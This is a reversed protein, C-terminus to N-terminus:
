RKWKIVLAKYVGDLSIFSLSDVGIYKQIEKISFKSALLEEKTPTDIGYYCPFKVPPSAIRMHIKKLEM